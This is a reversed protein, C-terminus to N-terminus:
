AHYVYPSSFANTDSLFQDIGHDQYRLIKSKAVTIPYPPAIALPTNELLVKGGDAGKTNEADLHGVGVVKFSSKMDHMEYHIPVARTGIVDSVFSAITELYGGHKGLWLEKLAHQQKLSGNADVYLALRWGGKLLNDPAHLWASVNLGDLRVDHLHGEEIHWALFAQCFGETPDALFVCPCVSDCNCSEMYTGKVSYVKSEAEKGMDEEGESSAFARTSVLGSLAALVPVGALGKIFSRRKADGTHTASTKETTM